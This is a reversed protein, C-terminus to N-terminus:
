CIGVKNLCHDLSLCLKYENENTRLRIHIALLYEFMRLNEDYEHM